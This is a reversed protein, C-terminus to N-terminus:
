KDSAGAKAKSSTPILFDEIKAGRKKLADTLWVPKMGRGTWVQDGNAPNRYKPAIKKGSLPSKAAKVPKDFKGAQAGFVEALSYGFGAAANALKGRVIEPHKRKRLTTNRTKAQSILQELQKSNFSTLDFAM